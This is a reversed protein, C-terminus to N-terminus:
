ITWIYSTHKKRKEPGLRTYLWPIRTGHIWVIEDTVGDTM